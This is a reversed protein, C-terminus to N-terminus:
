KEVWAFIDGIGYLQCPHKEVSPTVGRSPWCPPILCVAVSVQGFYASLESCAAQFSGEKPWQGKKFLPLSASPESVGWRSSM